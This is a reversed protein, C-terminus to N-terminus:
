MGCKQLPIVFGRKVNVNTIDGGIIKKDYMLINIIVNDKSEFNSIEYTYKIVTEGAYRSLDYGALNQIENYEEYMQDFEKPIKIYSVDPEENTEWGLEDLFRRARAENSVPFLSAVVIVAIMLGASIVTVIVSAKKM